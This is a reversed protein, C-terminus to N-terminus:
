LYRGDKTIMTPEVLKSGMREKPGYSVIFGGLDFNRMNELATILKEPTPNKGAKTLAEVILKATIYAQFTQYSIPKGAAQAASRYDRAIETTAAEPSPVVQMVIVGRKLDGLDRIFGANSANSLAVFQAANRTATYGKITDVGCKAACILLIVEPKVQAFTAVAKTVEPNRNDVREIAAPKLNLATLKAEASRLVDNGFADNAAVFAFSRRGLSHQLDIARVVEATYSARVAFVSRKVPETINNGGAQPGILPVKAQEALPILADTTPSTRPLIIALAANSSLLSTALEASKKADQGDDLRELVIKRGHVGGRSNVANFYLDAGDLAENNSAALVANKLPGIHHLVVRDPFVGNAQAWAAASAVALLTGVVSRLLFVTGM